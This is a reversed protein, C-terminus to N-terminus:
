IRGSRRHHRHQTSVEILPLGRKKRVDNVAEEISTTSSKLDGPLGLNTLTLNRKLCDSLFPVIEDTLVNPTTQLHNCLMLTVLSDNYILSTALQELGMNTMGCNCLYLIKLGQNVRLADALLQSGGYFLANNSIDLEKLYQNAVLALALCKAGYSTFGCKNLHLKKLGKNDRLAQTLHEIGDDYVKNYSIDLEEIHKNTALAKALSENCLENALCSLSFVVSLLNCRQLQPMVEDLASLKALASAVLLCISSSSM